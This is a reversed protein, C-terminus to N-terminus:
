LQEADRQLLDEALEALLEGARDVRLLRPVRGLQEAGRRGKSFADASAEREALLPGMLAVDRGHAGGKTLFRKLRGICFSLPHREILRGGKRELSRSGKGRM